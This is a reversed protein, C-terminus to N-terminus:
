FIEVTVIHFFTKFSVTLHFYIGRLVKPLNLYYLQQPNKLMAIQKIIFEACKMKCESPRLNLFCRSCEPYPLRFIGHEDCWWGGRFIPDTCALAGLTKGHFAGSFVIISKRQTYERSIRLALEVAESGTTLLGIKRMPGSIMKKLQENLTLRSPTVIDHCHVLSHLQKEIANLVHPHGHGTSMIAPGSHLDLYWNGDADKVYVGKGEVITLHSHQASASLGWTDRIIKRFIAQSKLPPMM